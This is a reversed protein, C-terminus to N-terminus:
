GTLLKAGIRFKDSWWITADQWADRVDAFNDDTLRGPIAWGLRLFGACLTVDLQPQWWDESFADGLRSALAQKYIEIVEDFSVPLNGTNTAIWWVLDMAPTGVTAGIWNSLYFKTEPELQIGISSAMFAGHVLTHPFRNLADELLKPAELWETVIESIDPDIFKDIREWGDLIADFIFHVGKHPRCTKPLWQHLYNRIDMLGLDPNQLAPDQWFEAQVDAIRELCTRNEVETIKSGDKGVITSSIDHMLFAWGSDYMACAINPSVVTNELRDIIGHEWLRTERGLDDDTALVIWNEEPVVQKLIYSTGTGGNTEVLVKKNGSLDFEGDPKTTVQTISEGVLKSLTEPALMADVSPFLEHKM